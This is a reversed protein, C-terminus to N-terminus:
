KINNYEELTRENKKHRNISKKLHKQLENLFVKVQERDVNSKPNVLKRKNKGIAYKLGLLAGIPSMINAKGIISFILKRKQLIDMIVQTILESEVRETGEALKELEKYAELTISSAELERIDRVGHKDLLELKKVKKVGYKKYWKTDLIKSVDIRVIGLVHPPSLSTPDLYYLRCYTTKDELRKGYVDLLLTSATDYRSGSKPTCCVYHIHYIAYMESFAQFVASETSSSEGTSNLQNWEDISYMIDRKKEMIKRNFEIMDSCITDYNSAKKRKLKKSIYENVEDKIALSVCSKGQRVEGRVTISIHEGYDVKSKLVAWFINTLDRTMVDKLEPVGNLIDQMYIHQISDVSAKAFSSKL